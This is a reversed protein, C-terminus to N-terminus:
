FGAARRMQGSGTRVRPTPRGFTKKPTKADAPTKGTELWTYLDPDSFDLEMDKMAKQAAPEIAPVLKSVAVTMIKQAQDSAEDSSLKAKSQLDKTAAYFLNKLSSGLERSITDLAEAADAAKSKERETDFTAKGASLSKLLDGFFGEDLSEAIMKAKSDSIKRGKSEFLIKVYEERILAQLHSKTIKM